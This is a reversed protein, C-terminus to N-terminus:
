PERVCSIQWLGTILGLLFWFLFGPRSGLAVVDTIGYVFHALLGAASGLALAQELLVGRRWVQRLLAAALGWIALYAILGPLGLDLGAQLLHNHAHAIDYDLPFLFLPYLLPALRRFNNMGMGTLPFDHLGYLARSWIEVRGSLSAAGSTFDESEVGVPAVVSELVATPGFVTTTIILLLLGCGLLLLSARPARKQLPALLFFLFGIAFGLYGSRSQTLLLLLLFLGASATIFLRSLTSPFPRIGERWRGPQLWAAGSLALAPFLLWPLV